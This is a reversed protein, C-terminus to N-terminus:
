MGKELISRENSLDREDAKESSFKSGYRAKLKNIIVDMVNCANGDLKNINALVSNYLSSSIYKIKKIDMEKGYFMTKKCLDLGDINFELSEKFITADFDLESKLIALYWLMDGLEELANIRDNNKIALNFEDIETHLGMFSHLIRDTLGLDIVDLSLPRFKSETKIALPVFEKFTM